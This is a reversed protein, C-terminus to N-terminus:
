HHRPLALLALPDRLRRLGRRLRVVLQHLPELPDDALELGAPERQLLRDLLERLAHPENAVGRVPEVLRLPAHLLENPRGRSLVGLDREVNPLPLTPAIGAASSSAGRRGWIMMTSSSRSVRSISVSARSRSPNSTRVAALPSRRMEAICTSRGSTIRSSMMILQISPKSSQRAMLCFGLKASMGTTKM